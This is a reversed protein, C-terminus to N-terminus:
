LINTVNNHGAGQVGSEPVNVHVVVKLHDSPGDAWATPCDGHLWLGSKALIALRTRTKM